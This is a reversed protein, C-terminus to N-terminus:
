KKARVILDSTLIGKSIGNEVLLYLKLLLEFIYWLFYRIFSKLGHIVPRQPFINIESFGVARLVQEISQSTFALEHTFDGYRLRGWLLNEANVTQIVFVGNEKLSQRVNEIVNLIEAKTLHELFDRAFVVDYVKEKSKLFGIADAQKVNKVGLQRAKELQEASIDIGEVNAFGFEGLWYVFGGDGCGIDLIKSKKDAPLFRGFYTRWIPFQRKIDELSSEGYLNVTHASVYKSYFKDRYDDMM